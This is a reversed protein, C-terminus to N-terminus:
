PGEIRDCHDSEDTFPCNYVAYGQALLDEVLGPASHPNIM